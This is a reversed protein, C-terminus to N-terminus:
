NKIYGVPDKNDKPWQVTYGRVKWWEEAIPTIYADWNHLIDHVEKRDSDRMVEYCDPHNRMRNNKNLWAVRLNEAHEVWASHLREFEALEEPTPTVHESM